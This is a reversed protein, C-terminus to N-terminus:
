HSAIMSGQLEERPIKENNQTIDISMINSFISLLSLTRLTLFKVNVLPM